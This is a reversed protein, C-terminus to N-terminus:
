AFPTRMTLLTASMVPPCCPIPRPMASASAPAPNLMASADTFLLIEGTAERALHGLTTPKGRNEPNRLLRVVSPPREPLPPVLALGDPFRLDGPFRAVEEWGPYTAGTVDVVYGVGALAASDDVKTRGATSSSASSGGDDASCGVTSAIVGVAVVLPLLRRVPRTRTM